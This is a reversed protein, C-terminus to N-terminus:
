KTDEKIIRRNWRDLMIKMLWDLSFRLSSQTMTLNCNRCGITIQYQRRGRYFWYPRGGCFPCNNLEELSTDYNHIEM